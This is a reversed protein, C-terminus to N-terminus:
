FPLDDDRGCKATPASTFPAFPDSNDLLAAPGTWESLVSDIAAQQAATYPEAKEVDLDYDVPTTDLFTVTLALDMPSGKKGANLKAALRKNFKKQTWSFVQVTNTDLNFVGACNFQKASEVMGTDRDKRWAVGSPFAEGPRVRVPKNAETWMEFGTFIPTIFRFTASKTPLKKLDGMRLYKGSGSSMEPVFQTSETM